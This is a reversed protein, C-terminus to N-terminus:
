QEFPPLIRTFWWSCSDNDLHLIILYNKDLIVKHCVEFTNFEGARDFSLKNQVWDRARAVEEDLGMILMTDLADTVTYGIGGSTSLNTGTKSIPHYEDDGM